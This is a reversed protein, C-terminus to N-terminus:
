NVAEDPRRVALALHYCSFELIRLLNLELERKAQFEYVLKNVRTRKRRSKYARPFERPSEDVRGARPLERTRSLIPSRFNVAKQGNQNSFPYLNFNPPTKSSSKALSVYPFMRLGKLGLDVLMKEETADM